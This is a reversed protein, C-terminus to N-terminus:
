LYCANGHHIDSCLYHKAFGKLLLSILASKVLLAVENCDLDRDEAKFLKM